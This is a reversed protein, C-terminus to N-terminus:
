STHESRIPEVRQQTEMGRLFNLFHRMTPQALRDTRTEM